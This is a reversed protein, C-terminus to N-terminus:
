RIEGSSTTDQIVGGSHKHLVTLTSATFPLIEQSQTRGMFWAESTISREIPQSYSSLMKGKPRGLWNLAKM